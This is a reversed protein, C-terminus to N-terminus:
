LLGSVSVRLKDRTQQSVSRDVEDPCHTVVYVPLVEAFRGDDAAKRPDVEGSLNFLDIKCGCFIWM